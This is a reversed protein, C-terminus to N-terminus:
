KSVDVILLSSRTRNIKTSENKNKRGEERDKAPYYDAWALFTNTHFAVLPQTEIYSVDYDRLAYNNYESTWVDVYYRQPNLGVFSVVGYDDTYGEVILNREYDWDGLSGYLRVSADPVIFQIVESANWEAVTIELVTYYVDITLYAVDVNNDKSTARLSVQYTGEQIYYHTPNALTSTTGDGFDWDFSVARDSYNTFRIVDYPQVTTYDATFNAYPHVECGTFLVALIGSLIILRKM